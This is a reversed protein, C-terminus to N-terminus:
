GIHKKIFADVELWYRAPDVDVSHTHTAKPIIMLEKPANIARHIEEAMEPLVFRDDAGHIIYVPCKIDQANKLPSADTLSYKALLRVWMRVAPLFLSMPLKIFWSWVRGFQKEFDSPASDSIVCKIIGSKDKAATMLSCAAGMSIGLLAIEARPCRQRVLDCWRLIDASDLCSLGYYRGESQGHARLDIALVSYGMRGFHAAYPIMNRGDGSYGHVCIVCKTEDSGGVFYGHLKVGDDAKIYVDEFDFDPASSDKKGEGKPKGRFVFGKSLSRSVFVSFIIFSVVFYLFAVIGLIWLIWNM